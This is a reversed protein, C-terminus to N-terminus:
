PKLGMLSRSPGSHPLCVPFSKKICRELRQAAPAKQMDQQSNTHPCTASAGGQFHLSPLWDLSSQQNPSALVQRPLPSLYSTKSCDRTGLQVLHCLHLNQAWVSACFACAPTQQSATLENVCSNKPAQATARM